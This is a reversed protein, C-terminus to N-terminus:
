KWSSYKGALSFIFVSNSSIDISNKEAVDQYLGKRLNGIRTCLSGTSIYYKRQVNQYINHMSPVIGSEDISESAYKVAYVLYQFVTSSSDAGMSILLEELMVRRIGETYKM